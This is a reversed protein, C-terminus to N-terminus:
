SQVRAFFEGGVDGLMGALVDVESEGNLLSQALLLVHARDAATSPLRGFVQQYFQTVTLTAFEIGGVVSKAVASPFETGNNMNQVHLAAGADGASTRLLFVNYLGEV